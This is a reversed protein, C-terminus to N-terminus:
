FRQMIRESTYWRIATSNSRKFLRYCKEYIELEEPPLAKRLEAMEYDITEEILQELDYDKKEEKRPIKDEAEILFELEENIREKDDEKRETEPKKQSVTVERRPKVGPLMKPKVTIMGSSQPQDVKKKVLVWGTLRITKRKFPEPKKDESMAEEGRGERVPTPSRRQGAEGAKPRSMTRSGDIPGPVAGGEVMGVGDGPAPISAAGNEERGM